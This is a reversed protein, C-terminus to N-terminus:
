PIITRYRRDMVSVAAGFAILLGGLWILRVFPKIQLRATWYGGDVAEGLSIYLDRRLAGEISAETM